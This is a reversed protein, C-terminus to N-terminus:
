RQKYGTREILVLSTVTGRTDEGDQPVSNM